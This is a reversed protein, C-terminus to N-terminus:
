ISQSNEDAKIIDYYFCDTDESTWRDSKECVFIEKDVKYKPTSKPDLPKTVFNSDKWFIRNNPQLAFCGNDLKLLHANKYDNQIDDISIKSTDNVIYTNNFWGLISQTGFYSNTYNLIFYNTSYDLKSNFFVNDPPPL